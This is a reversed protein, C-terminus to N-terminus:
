ADFVGRRIPLWYLFGLLLTAAVTLAPPVNRSRTARLATPLELVHIVLMVGCVLVVPHTTRGAVLLGAGLLVFAALGARQLRWFWPRDLLALLKLM